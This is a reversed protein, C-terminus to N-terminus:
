QRRRGDHAVVDGDWQLADVIQLKHEPLSALLARQEAVARQGVDDLWENLLALDTVRPGDRDIGSQRAIEAAMTNTATSGHCRSHRGQASATPWRRRTALLDIMGILGVFVM